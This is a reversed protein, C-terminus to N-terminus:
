NFLGKNITMFHHHNGLTPLGVARLALSMHLVLDRLVLFALFALGGLASSTVVALLRAISSLGLGDESLLGLGGLFDGESQLAVLALSLSADDDAPGLGDDEHFDLFDSLLLGTLSVGHVLSRVGYKFGM